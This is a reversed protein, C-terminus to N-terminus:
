IIEENMTKISVSNLQVLGSTTDYLVIEGTMLAAALRTKGNTSAEESKILKLSTCKTELTICSDVQKAKFNFKVLRHDAGYTYLWDREGL